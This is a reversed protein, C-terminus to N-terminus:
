EKFLESNRVLKYGKYDAIKLKHLYKKQQHIEKDKEDMLEVIVNLGEKKSVTWQAIPSGKPIVEGRKMFIFSNLQVPNFSAGSIIGPTAFWNGTHYLTPISTLYYGTPINVSWRGRYKLVLYDESNPYNPFLNSVTDVADSETLEYHNLTIWGMIGITNIAPCKASHMSPELDRQLITKYENALDQLNNYAYESSPMFYKKGDDLNTGNYFFRIDDM